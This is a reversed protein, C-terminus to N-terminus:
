GAAPGPPTDTKDTGPEESSDTMNDTTAVTPAAGAASAAAAAAAAARHRVFWLSMLLAVVIVAVASAIYVGYFLKPKDAQQVTFSLGLPNTKTKPASAIAFGFGASRIAEGDGEGEVTVFAEHEGPEMPDELVYTWKGDDDAKAVLVLPESFIYIVVMQRPKATGSLELADKGNKTVKQFKELKLEKSVPLEKVKAPEVPALNSPIVLSRRVFCQETRVLEDFGLRPKQAIRERYEEEGLTHSLCRDLEADGQGNRSLATQFVGSEQAEQITKPQDTLATTTTRPATSTPSAPYTTTETSSLVKMPIQVDKYQSGYTVRVKIFGDGSSPGSNINARYVHPTLVGKTVSWDYAANQSVDSRATGNVLSVRMVVEFVVNTPGTWSQLSPVVELSGTTTPTTTNNVNFSIGQTRCAQTTTNATSGDSYHVVAYSSYIGNGGMDANRSDFTSRWYSETAKVASFQFQEKVRFGVSHTLYNTPVTAELTVIGSVTSENFPKTVAVGSPCLPLTSDSQAASRKAPLMLGAVLGLLIIGIIGLTSASRRFRM